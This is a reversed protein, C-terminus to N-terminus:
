LTKRDNPCRSRYGAKLRLASSYDTIASDWEGLKLYILGRSDVTAAVNPELRLAENCDALAAQLEGVVARSWCRGNWATELTPKLRIAEDYDRAAREYEGKIQYTAARNAFANGYDPNLKISEDFDKIARDYEGKKQYAGHISAADFEEPIFAGHVGQRGQSGLGRPYPKERHHLHSPSNSRLRPLTEVGSKRQRGFALWQLTTDSIHTASAKGGRSRVLAQFIGSSASRSSATM